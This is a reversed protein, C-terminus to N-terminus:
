PAVVWFVAMKLMHSIRVMHYTSRVRKRKGLHKTLICFASALSIGVKEATVMYSIRSTHQADNACQKM